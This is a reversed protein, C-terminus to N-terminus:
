EWTKAWHSHSIQKAIIRSWLVLHTHKPIYIRIPHKNLVAVPSHAPSLSIVLCQKCSYYPAVWYHIRGQFSKVSKGFITHYLNPTFKFLPNEKLICSNWCIKRYIFWYCVSGNIIVVSIGFVTKLYFVTKILRIWFRNVIVLPDPLYTHSSLLPATVNIYFWYMQIYDTCQIGSM